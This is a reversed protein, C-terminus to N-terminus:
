APPVWTLWTVDWGRLAEESKPRRTLNPAEGPRYHLAPRDGLGDGALNRATEVRRDWDDVTFGHGDLPGGTCYVARPLTM